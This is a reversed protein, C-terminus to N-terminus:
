SPKAPAPPGTDGNENAAAGAKVGLMHGAKGAAGLAVVVGLATLLTSNDKTQGPKAPQAKYYMAIRLSASVPLDGNADLFDEVTVKGDHNTDYSLDPAVKDLEVNIKVLDKALLEKRKKEAADLLSQAAGQAIPKIQTLLKAGQDKLSNMLNAVITDLAGKSEAKVTDISEKLTDQV